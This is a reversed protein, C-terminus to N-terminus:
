IGCILSIMYYKDKEAHSIESLMINKLDMWMTEFPLTKKTKLSLLIGNHLHQMATKDVWRSISVQAAEMAQHNYIVSCHVYPHKREKLNTNQTEESINM